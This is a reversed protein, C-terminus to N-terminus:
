APPKTKKKPSSKKATAPKKKPAEAKKAKVPKPKETSKVAPKVETKASQHHARHHFSMKSEKGDILRSINDRHKYIIFLAMFMIPLFAVPSGFAFLSFLPAFLMSVISALSAYRSFNAIVLWTVIVMVGLLFNYGLLAGLATAVGKGGKFDFFLPYMHGIVAALCTFGVIIPGAGILKALLVPL